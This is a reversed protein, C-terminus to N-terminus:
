SLLGILTKCNNEWSYRTKVLALANTRLMNALDANSKLSLIHQIYEEITDAILIEKNPIAGIGENVRSTTVCPLGHSMAELIKNQQGAGQWIPAIFMDASAYYDAMEEVWGTIEINSKGHNSISPHPRAGVIKLTADPWQNELRPMIQDMLFKAARINPTYGMNGSFLLHHRLRDKPKSQGIEVGNSVIKPLDAPSRLAEADRESIITTHDFHKAIEKEYTAVRRQEIRYLPKLLAHKVEVERQMILSFSDMYDMTKPIPIDKTYESTRILQSYIHAPSLATIDSVIAEKIRKNYFYAIQFPLSSLSHAILSLLRRWISLKYITIQKCFPELEELRRKSVAHDDICFLHIEFHKSLEKIQFYLRLKDGKELPFPFRSSVIALKKM